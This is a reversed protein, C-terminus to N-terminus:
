VLGRIRRRLRGGFTSRVGGIMPIGVAGTRFADAGHSADDHVPM